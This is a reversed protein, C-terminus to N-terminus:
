LVVASDFLKERPIDPNDANEIIWRAIVESQVAGARKEETDLLAANDPTNVIAPMIDTVCVSTGKLEHALALMFHHGAAKLPGYTLNGALEPRIAAHSSINVILGRGQERFLKQAVFSVIFTPLFLADFHSRALDTAESMSGDISLRKWTGASIVVVDVKGFKERALAFVKEIEESQSADAPVVLTKAPDLHAAVDLLKSETRASLVVNAGVKAVEEVIVRGIGGSAGIIIYTKTDNM